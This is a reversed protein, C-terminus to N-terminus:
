PVRRLSARQKATSVDPTDQSKGNAHASCSHSCESLHKGHHLSSLAASFSGNFWRKTRTDSDQMGRCEGATMHLWSMASLLLLILAQASEPCSRIVQLDTVSLLSVTSFRHTLPTGCM